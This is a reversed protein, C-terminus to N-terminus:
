DGSLYAFRARGQEGGTSSGLGFHCGALMVAIAALPYSAFRLNMLDGRAREDRGHGICRALEAGVRHRRNTPGLGLSGLGLGASVRIGPAYSRVWTSLGAARRTRVKSAQHFTRAELTGKAPWGGSGGGDSRVVWRPGGSSARPPAGRCPSRRARGQQL